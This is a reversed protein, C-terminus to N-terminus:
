SDAKLPPEHGFTSWPRQDKPRRSTGPWCTFSDAIKVLVAIGLTANSRFSEFM